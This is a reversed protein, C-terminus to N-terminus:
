RTDMHTCRDAVIHLHTRTDILHEGRSLCSRLQGRKESAKTRTTGVSVRHHNARVTAGLGDHKGVLAVQRHQAAALTDLSNQGVM